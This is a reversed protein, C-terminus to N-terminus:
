FTKYIFTFSDNNEKNPIVRIHSDNVIDLHVNVENIDFKFYIEGIVIADNGLYNRRIIDLNDMRVGSDPYKNHSFYIGKTKNGKNQIQVQNIFDNQYNSFKAIIYIKDSKVQVLFEGYYDNQIQQLFQRPNPM